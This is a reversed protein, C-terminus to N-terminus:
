PRELLEPPFVATGRVSKGSENLFKVLKCAEPADFPFHIGHSEIPEYGFRPYYDAHGCLVCLAFGLGRATEHGAQLLAAGIGQGQLAPLGSIPGV